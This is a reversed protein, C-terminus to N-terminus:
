TKGKKTLEAVKEWALTYRDAVKQDFAEKNDIACALAASSEAAERYIALEVMLITNMKKAEAFDDALTGFHEYCVMM